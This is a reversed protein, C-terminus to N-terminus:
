WSSQHQLAVASATVGLLHPLALLIPYSLALSCFTLKSHAPPAPTSCFPCCCHPGRLLASGLSCLPPPIRRSPHKGARKWKRASLLWYPGVTSKAEACTFSPQAFKCLCFFGLFFFGLFFFSFVGFGLWKEQLSDPGYELALSITRSQEQICNVVMAPHFHRVWSTGELFQSQISIVRHSVDSGLTHEVALTFWALSLGM